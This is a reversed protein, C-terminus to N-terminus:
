RKARKRIAMSKGSRLMIPLLLKMDIMLAGPAIFSESMSVTLPGFLFYGGTGRPSSVFFKEERLLCSHSYEALQKRDQENKRGNGTSCFLFPRHIRTLRDRKRWILNRGRRSLSTLSMWSPYIM